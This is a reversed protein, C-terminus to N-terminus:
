LSFLVDELSVVPVSVHKEIDARIADFKDVVSVVIVDVDEDIEKLTVTRVGSVTISRANQDITFPIEIDTDRLERLLLKGLEGMGYIAVRKYNKNRFYDAVRVKDQQIIVWQYIVKYWQYYRDPKKKFYYRSGAFCIGACVVGFLFNKKM